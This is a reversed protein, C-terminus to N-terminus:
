YHNKKGEFLWNIKLKVADALSISFDRFSRNFITNIAPSCHALGRSWSSKACFHSFHLFSTLHNAWRQAFIQPVPPFGDRTINAWGRDDNRGLSRLARSFEDTTTLNQWGATNEANGPQSDQQSHPEPLQAWVNSSWLQQADQRGCFWHEELMEELEQEGESRCISSRLWRLGFM